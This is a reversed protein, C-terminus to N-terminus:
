GAEQTGSARRRLLWAGGVAAGALVGAGAAIQSTDSRVSGGVGTKVRGSPGTPVSSDNRGSSSNDRGSSSSNDRGSSSNDRGSSSSNDRGSSSNDRGSSSNDRGFSSDHRGSGGQDESPNRNGNGRENSGENRSPTSLGSFANLGGVSDLLSPVNLGFPTDRASGPPNDGNDNDGGQAQPGSNTRPVAASGARPTGSDGAYAPQGATFLCLSAITVAFAAAGTVPRAPRM